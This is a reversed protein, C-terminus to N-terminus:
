LPEATLLKTLQHIGGRTENLITWLHLRAQQKPWMM